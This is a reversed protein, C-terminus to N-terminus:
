DPLAALLEAVTRGDPPVRWDPAIAALPELVFRREHLRPHPLTLEPHPLVLDGWLQLDVDLPRPGFRPGPRRDAARELAKAVALVADPPLATAGVAATNLYDPQPLPSVAATRFFPAARLPGLVAELQRLAERLTSEVPGLNGGLALAVPVPPRGSDPKTTSTRKRKTTSTRTTSSPTRSSKRTSIPSRSM